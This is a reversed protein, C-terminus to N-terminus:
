AHANASDAQVAAVPQRRARLEATTSGEGQPAWGPPMLLYGCFARVSRAGALDRVLSAWQSFQVTLPNYSTMPQVLGYRCPLDDREKVCTGFLRDFVILVGGFNADLYDVNSAHHVRHASPTNLIAELWGLRPIWTAHIWFQYLLNLTLVAFVTGPNFGIWILPVFFLSTGTLKGFVGIRFAASLNLENPSHHVSHNAWFWRVRHAARHYWYYCFEQGIFLLLVAAWTTLHITTLRHVFAWRVIPGAISLPLLINVAIRLVLDLASVGFARWDYGHRRSLVMAEILALVLVTPAAVFLLFREIPNMTLRDHFLPFSEYQIGQVRASLPKRRFLM